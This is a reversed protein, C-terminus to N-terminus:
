LTANRGPLCIWLGILPSSLFGRLFRSCILLAECVNAGATDDLWDYKIDAQSFPLLQTNSLPSLVIWGRIWNWNVTNLSSICCAEETSILINERASILPEIKGSVRHCYKHQLVHASDMQGTKSNRSCKGKNQTNIHLTWRNTNSSIGVIAKHLIIKRNHFTVTIIVIAVQTAELLVVSRYFGWYCMWTEAYISFVGVQLM